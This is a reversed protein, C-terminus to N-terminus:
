KKEGNAMAQVKSKLKKTIYVNIFLSYIISVLLVISVGIQIFKSKLNFNSGIIYCVVILLVCKLMFVYGFASRLREIYIVSNLFVAEKIRDLYFNFFQMIYVFLDTVVIYIPFIEPIYLDRYKLILFIVSSIAITLFLCMNVVDKAYKYCFVYLSAVVGIGVLTHWSTLYVLIVALLFINLLISM